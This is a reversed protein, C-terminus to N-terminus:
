PPRHGSRRQAGPPTDSGPLGLPARVGRAAPQAVGVPEAFGRIPPVEGRFQTLAAVGGTFALAAIAAAALWRRNARTRRRREALRQELLSTTLTFALNEAEVRLTRRLLDETRSDHM